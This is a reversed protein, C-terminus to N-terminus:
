VDVMLPHTARKCSKENHIKWFGHAWFTLREEFHQTNLDIKRQQLVRAHVLVFSTYKSDAKFVYTCPRM